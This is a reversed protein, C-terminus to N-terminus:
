QFEILIYTQFRMFYKKIQFELFISFFIMRFSMNQSRLRNIIQNANKLENELQQVNQESNTLKKELDLVIKEANKPLFGQHLNKNVVSDRRNSPDNFKDADLSDLLIFFDPNKKGNETIFKYANDQNKINIEESNFINYLSSIDFNSLQESQNSLYYDLNKSIRLNIYFKNYVSSPKILIDLKFLENFQSSSIFDRMIGFEQSLQYYEWINDTTIKPIVDNTWYELYSEFIEKPVSTNVVYKEESILQNKLCKKDEPMKDLYKINFPISFNM